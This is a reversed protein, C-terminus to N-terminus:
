CASVSVSNMVSRENSSESIAQCSNISQKEYEMLQQIFLLSTIERVGIASRLRTEEQFLVLVVAPVILCVPTKFQKNNNKMVELEHKEM